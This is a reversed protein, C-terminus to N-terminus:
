NKENKIIYESILFVILLKPDKLEVVSHILVLTDIFILFLGFIFLIISLNMFYGIIIASFIGEGIAKWYERGIEKLKDKPM